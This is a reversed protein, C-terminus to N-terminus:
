YCPLGSAPIETAEKRSNMLSSSPVYARLARNCRWLRCRFLRRGEQFTKPQDLKQGNGTEGARVGTNLPGAPLNLDRSALNPSKLFIQVHLECSTLQWM